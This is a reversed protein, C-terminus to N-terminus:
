RPLQASASCQSCSRIRRWRSLSLRAHPESFESAHPTGRGQRQLKLQVAFQQLQLGQQTHQRALAIGARRHPSTTAHQGLQQHPALCGAVELALALAGLQHRALAQRRRGQQFAPQGGSLAAPQQELEELAGAAQPVLPAQDFALRQEGVALLAYHTFGQLQDGVQMSAAQHLLVQVQVIDEPMVPLELQDIAAAHTGDALAFGQGALLHQGIEPHEEGLQGGGKRRVQFLQQHMVQQGVALVGQRQFHQLLLNGPDAAPAQTVEELLDTAFAAQEADPARQEAQTGNTPIGLRAHRRQQGSRISGDGGTM